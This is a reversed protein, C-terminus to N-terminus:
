SDPSPEAAPLDPLTLQARHHRYHKPAWGLFDVRSMRPAFYPDWAEPVAMGRNMDRESALDAWRLLWDTDASMWRRARRLGVTRAGGVAGVYNIWNYPWTAAALARAFAMDLGWPLRSTVGMMVVVARTIRQGFWMHFLLERNTWRTGESDRDLDAAAAGVVLRHFDDRIWALDRLCQDGVHPVLGNQGWTANSEISSSPSPGKPLRTVM